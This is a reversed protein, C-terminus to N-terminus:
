YVNVMKLDLLYITSSALAISVPDKTKPIFLNAAKVKSSNVSFYVVLIVLKDLPYYDLVKVLDAAM